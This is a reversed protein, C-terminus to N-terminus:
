YSKQDGNKTAKCSHDNAVKLIKVLAGELKTIAQGRDELLDDLEAIDKAFWFMRANLFM